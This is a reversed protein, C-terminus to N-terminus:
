SIPEVGLAAAIDESAPEHLVEDVSGVQEVKGDILVVVRTALARAEELDHTVHLVALELEEHLRRMLTWLRKRRGPDLSSFPEDLLLVDSGAALARAVAVRQREGGSLTRPRRQLLPTVGVREAWRQAADRQENAPRGQAALGFAINAAVDLHPFVTDAQSVWGVSRADPALHAADDGRLQVQGSSPPRFGAVVDLLSSKGAGSPGLVVVYEGKEVSLDVPGLTFDGSRVTVAALRIM